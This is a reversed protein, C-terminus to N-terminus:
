QASSPVLIRIRGTMGQAQKSGQAKKWDIYGCRALNGYANFISAKTVGIRSALVDPDTIMEGNPFPAIKGHEDSQEGIAALAKLSIHKIDPDFIARYIVDQIPM